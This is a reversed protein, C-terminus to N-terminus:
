PAKGHAEACPARDPGGIGTVISGEMAQCLASLELKCSTRHTQRLAARDCDRDHRCHATDIWDTEVMPTVQHDLRAQEGM